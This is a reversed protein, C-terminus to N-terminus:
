IVTWLFRPAPSGDGLTVDGRHDDDHGVTAHAPVDVVVLALHAPLIHKDIFENRGNFRVVTDTLLLLEAADGAKRHSAVARQYHGHSVGVEKGSGGCETASNHRIFFHM